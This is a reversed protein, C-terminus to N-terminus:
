IFRVGGEFFPGFPSDLLQQALDKDLSRLIEFHKKALEGNQVGMHYMALLQHAKALGPNIEVAKQLAQVGEASQNDKKLAEIAQNLLEIDEGIAPKDSSVRAGQSLLYSELDKRKYERAVDLPTDGSNDKVDLRAGQHLLLKAMDTYGQLAAFHLPTWGTKNPANTKAGKAILFEAINIAGSAAVFHLVTMGADDMAEVVSPDANVISKVKELDKSKAADIVDSMHKKVTPQKGFLKSLFSM